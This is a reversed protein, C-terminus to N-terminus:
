QYAEEFYESTTNLVKAVIPAHVVQEGGGLERWLADEMPGWVMPLPEAEVEPLRRMYNELMTLVSRSTCVSGRVQHWAELDKIRGILDSVQIVRPYQTKPM